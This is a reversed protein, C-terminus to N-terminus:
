TFLSNSGSVLFIVEGRLVSVSTPKAVEALVSCHYLSLLCMIFYHHGPVYLSEAKVKSEM